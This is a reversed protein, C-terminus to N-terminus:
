LIPSCYPELLSPVFYLAQLFLRFNIGATLRHRPSPRADRGSDRRTAGALLLLRAAPQARRRAPPSSLKLGPQSASRAVTVRVEEANEKVVTKKVTLPHMWSAWLRGPCMLNWGGHLLSLFSLHHSTSHGHSKCFIRHDSLLSPHSGVVSVRSLLTVDQYAYQQILVKAKSKKKLFFLSGYIM